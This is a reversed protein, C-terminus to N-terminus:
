EIQFTVNFILQTPQPVRSIDLSRQIEADRRYVFSNCATGAQPFIWGNGYPAYSNTLYNTFATRVFNLDLRSRFIGTVILGLGRPSTSPAKCYVFAAPAPAAVIPGASLLMVSAVVLRPVM